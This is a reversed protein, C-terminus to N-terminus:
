CEIVQLNGLAMFHSCCEVIALGSIATFGCFVDMHILNLHIFALWFFFYSRWISSALTDYVM